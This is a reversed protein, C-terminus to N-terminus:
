TITVRFHYPTDADHYDNAKLWIFYQGAALGTRSIVPCGMADVMGTVRMNAANRLELTWNTGPSACAAYAANLAVVDLNHGGTPVDVVFVDPYCDDGAIDGTVILTNSAPLILHNAEVQNDNPIQENVEMSDTIERRCNSDCGDGNVRNGDDCAEGHQPHSEGPMTVVADGCTPRIATLVYRAGGTNRDDVGLYWTGATPAQFAFHEDSAGDCQDSIQACTRGDCAGGSDQLLYLAPDRGLGLDRPDVALHFHWFDGSSVTIAFFADNGDTSHGACTARIDDALMTTDVGFPPTTSAIVGHVSDGCSEAPTIHFGMDGMDGPGM